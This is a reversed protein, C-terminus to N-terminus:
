HGFELPGPHERATKLKEADACGFHEVTTSDRTEWLVKDVSYEASICQFLLM